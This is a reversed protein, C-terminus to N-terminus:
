LAAKLIGIVEERTANRPNNAEMFLGMQGSFDDVIGPLDSEKIGVESLTEAMGLDRALSRVADISKRAAEMLTCGEINEGMLEAIKAFREPVAVLNFEMISPLLITLAAGHSIHAREIVHGDLAHVLGVGSMFLGGLGMSAAVSLNHRVEPYKQGKAYALRLNDAVLEITKELIADSVINAQCSVYGEIAHTLIDMGTDATVRSPLNITMESDVIAANAWVEPLRIGKKMGNRSDTVIAGNGWESGTGATTPIMIKPLIKKGAQMSDLLEAAKMNNLALMSVAKCSDMVSGGGVAILLDFKGERVKQTCEEIKDTPANPLCGDYIDYKCKIKDLHPKVKDLLGAAVVGADTIILVKKAGFSKVLGGLENL